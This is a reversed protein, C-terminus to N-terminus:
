KHWKIFTKILQFNKFYACDNDEM